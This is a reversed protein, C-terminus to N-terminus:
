GDDGAKMLRRVLMSRSEALLGALRGPRDPAWGEAGDRFERPLKKELDSLEAALAGLAAPDSGIEDILSMLEGVAGDPPLDDTL